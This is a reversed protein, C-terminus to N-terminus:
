GILSRQIQWCLRFRGHVQVLIFFVFREHESPVLSVPRISCLVSQFHVVQHVVRSFLWHVLYCILSM